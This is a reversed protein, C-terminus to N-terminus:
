NGEGKIGAGNLVIDYPSGVTNSVIRLTQRATGIARPTFNVEVTVPKGPQVVFTGSDWYFTATRPDPSPPVVVTADSTGLNTIVLTRTDVGKLATKSFTIQPPTIEIGPPGYAKALACFRDQLFNSGDCTVQPTQLGYAVASGVSPQKLALSALNYDYPVSPPCPADTPCGKHSSSLGVFYIGLLM